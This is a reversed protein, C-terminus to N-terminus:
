EFTGELHPRVRADRNRDCAQRVNDEGHMLPFPAAAGPQKILPFDRHM